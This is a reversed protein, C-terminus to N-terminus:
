KPQETPPTFDKFQNLEAALLGVSGSAVGGAYKDITGQHSVVLAVANLLQTLREMRVWQSVEPPSSLAQEALYQRLCWECSDTSHQGTHGSARILNRCLELAHSLSKIQVMFREHAECLDANDFLAKDRAERLQANAIESQKIRGEYEKAVKVLLDKEATVKSFLSETESFLVWDGADDSKMCAHSINTNIVSYRSLKTSM